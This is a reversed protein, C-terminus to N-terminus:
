SPILGIFILLFIGYFIDRSLSAATYLNILGLGLASYLNLRSRVEISVFSMALVAFMAQPYAVGGAIAVMMGCLGLNILIFGVYKVWKQPNHRTRYAVIHGFALFMMGVPFLWIIRTVYTLAFAAVAQAFFAIWRLTKSDEPVKISEPIPNFRKLFKLM